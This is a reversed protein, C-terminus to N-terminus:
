KAVNLGSIYHINLQNQSQQKCASACAQSYWTYVYYHLKRNEDSNIMWIHYQIKTELM